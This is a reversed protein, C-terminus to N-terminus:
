SEKKRHTVMTRIKDIIQMKIKKMTLNTSEFKKSMSTMPMTVCEILFDEVTVVGDNKFRLIWKQLVKDQESECLEMLTIDRIPEIEKWFETWAYYLEEKRQVTDLAYYLSQRTGRGKGLRERIENYSLGEERGRVVAKEKKDWVLLTDPFGPKKINYAVQYDKDGAAFRLCKELIEQTM